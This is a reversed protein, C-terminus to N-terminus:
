ILIGDITREVVVLMFELKTHKKLPFTDGCHMAVPQLSKVMRSVLKSENGPYHINQNKMERIIKKSKEM